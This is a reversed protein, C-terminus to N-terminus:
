GIVQFVNDNVKLLYLPFLETLLVDWPEVFEKVLRQTVQGFVRVHLLESLGEVLQLLALM